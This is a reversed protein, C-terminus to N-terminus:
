EYTEGNISFSTTVEASLSQSVSCYTDRSLTVARRVKEVPLDGTLRYHIHVHTFRRPHEEARSGSVEMDFDEVHLRMKKLIDVIDIGSCAGVASLLVETPRPGQDEGGVEQAADLTLQHGSPTTSNFKMKGNWTLKTQM